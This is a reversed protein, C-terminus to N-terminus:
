KNSLHKFSNRQSIMHNLDKLTKKPKKKKKLIRMRIIIPRTLSLKEQNQYDMNEKFLLKEDVYIWRNKCVNKAINELQLYKVNRM